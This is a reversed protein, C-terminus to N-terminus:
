NKDSMDEEDGSEEEESEEDEDAGGELHFPKGKPWNAHQQFAELSPLRHNMHLEMITMVLVDKVLEINWNGRTLRKGCECLAGEELTLPNGPCFNIADRNFSFERGRLM